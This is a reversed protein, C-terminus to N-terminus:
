EALSLLALWFVDFSVRSEREPNLTAEFALGDLVAVVVGVLLEVPVRPRLDLLQFLRTTTAEAEIHRLRAARRAASAAGTSPDHLLELLVRLEQLQLELEIWRWVADIAETPRCDDLAARERSLLRETLWEILRALLADRDRFHYHILAKSVGAETAVDQMSLRVLGADRVRRAAAALIKAPASEGNPERRAVVDPRRGGETAGSTADDESM